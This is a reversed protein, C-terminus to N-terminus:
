LRKRGLGINRSLCKKFITSGCGNVQLQQAMQGRLDPRQQAKQDLRKKLLNTIVSVLDNRSNETM